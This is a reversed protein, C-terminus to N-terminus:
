MLIPFSGDVHGILMRVGADMCVVLHACLDVLEEGLSQFMGFRLPSLGLM